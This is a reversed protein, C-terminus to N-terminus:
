SPATEHTESAIWGGGLLKAGDYFAAVQGPTVAFQTDDFHVTASEDRCPSIRCPAPVHNYRIQASARFPRDPAPAGAWRIRQVTLTRSLLHHREALVVENTAGRLAAVYLRKGGAFGLGRRQGVTFRHIGEHHGLTSGGRDM